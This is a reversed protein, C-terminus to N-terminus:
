CSVATMKLWCKFSCAQLILVSLMGVALIVFYGPLLGGFSLFNENQSVPFPSSSFEGASEVLRHNIFLLMVYKKASYNVNSVYGKLKFKLTEDTIDM